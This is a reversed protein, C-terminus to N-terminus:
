QENVLCYSIELPVVVLDTNDGTELRYYEVVTNAINKDACKTAAEINDTFNYDSRQLAKHLYFTPTDLTAIVYKVISKELIKNNKM